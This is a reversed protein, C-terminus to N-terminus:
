ANQVHIFLIPLIIQQRRATRRVSEFAYEPGAHSRGQRVAPAVLRSAEGCERLPSTAGATSPRRERKTIIGLSHKDRLTNDCLMIASRAPSETTHPHISV